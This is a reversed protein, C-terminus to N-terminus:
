GKRFRVVPYVQYDVGPPLAKGADYLEGMTTKNPKWDAIDWKKKTIVYQRFALMDLTKCTPYRQKFATGVGRAKCSDTGADNLRGLMISEIREMRDTAHKKIHAAFEEEEKEKWARLKLYEAILEGDKFELLEPFPLPGVEDIVDTM